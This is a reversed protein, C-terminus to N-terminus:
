KRREIDFESFTLTKFMQGRFIIKDMRSQRPEYNQCKTELCLVYFLIKYIRVFIIYCAVVM